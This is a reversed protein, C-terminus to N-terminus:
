AADGSLPADERKAGPFADYVRRHFAYSCTDDRVDYEGVWKMLYPLMDDQEEKSAYKHPEWPRQANNAMCADKGPNIFVLQTCFPLAKEILDGYCGEVVWDPYSRVFAYLDALVEYAPRAVAVEGPAWFITDLDLHMLQHQAALQRAHSSKGSGSNGMILVRM